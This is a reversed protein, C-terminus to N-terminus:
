HFSQAFLPSSMRTCNLNSCNYNCRDRVGYESVSDSDDASSWLCMGASSLYRAGLWHMHWGLVFSKQVAVCHPQYIFLATTSGICSINSEVKRRRIKLQTPQHGYLKLKPTQPNVLSLHHLSLNTESSRSSSIVSNLQAM